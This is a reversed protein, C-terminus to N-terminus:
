VDRLCSTKTNEGRKGESTKTPSPPKKTQNNKTTKSTAVSEEATGQFLRYVTCHNFLVAESTLNSLDLNWRWWSEQQTVQPMNYLRETIWDRHTHFPLLWPNNNLNFLDIEFPSEPCCLLGRGWGCQCQGISHKTKKMGRDGDAYIYTHTHTHM